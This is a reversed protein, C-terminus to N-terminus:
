SEVDDMGMAVAHELTYPCWKPPSEFICHYAECELDRCQVGQSGNWLVEDQDYWGIWSSQILPNSGPVSKNDYSEICRQCVTKSLLPTVWPDAEVYKRVM